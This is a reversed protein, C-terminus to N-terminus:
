FAGLLWLVLLIVGVGGVVSLIPGLRSFYDQLQKKQDVRNKELASM